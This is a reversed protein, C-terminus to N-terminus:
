GDANPLLPVWDISVGNLTVRGRAWLVPLSAKPVSHPFAFTLGLGEMGLACRRIRDDPWAVLDFNKRTIYSLWLQEGVKACFARARLLSAPDKWGKDDQFAFPVVRSRLHTRFAEEASDTPQNQSRFDGWTTISPM